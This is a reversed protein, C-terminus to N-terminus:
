LDSNELDAIPFYTIRLNTCGYPELTLTTEECVIQKDGFPEFTREFYPACLFPARYGKLRLVIPPKEWVYGDIDNEIVEIDAPNINEDLAFNWTTKFRRFAHIMQPDEVDPLEYVPHVDYCDFGEIHVETNAPVAEWREPIHLSYVLPGRRIAIPYKKALYSDDIRVVETEMDFTISLRDGSNWLRSVRVYGNVAQDTTINTGNIQVAYSNCWSPIRLYIAFEKDCDIVFSVNNRFPYNTEERLKIGNNDLTCPGYANAYIDGNQDAMWMNSVFEPLFRVANVPCCSVRCCPEYRQKPIQSSSSIKTAYIQNPASFYAIAKEDKKRAGQGGNYFMEEMYDGYVGEGTIASMYGYTAQFFTYSCYECETTSGIPGLYENVSVPSGTINMAKERIQRLIRRSAQLYREEGTASYVIAPLKTTTGYAATHQVNFSLEEELFAKYSSHFVDHDAYFETYEKAFDLLRQDETLQYCLIMPEIITPGAYTTKKDGSWNECFWLLCRHIATLVDERRTVEYFALLALMALACGWANFDDYIKADPEYFTGLYGDERQNKLMANVWNTAKDILEQDNLTYALRILGHWYNASIEGGWGSQLDLPWEKVYRKNVYPLAVMSPALEDLHGGMGHKCRMLQEKLFGEATISGLPIKNLKQYTKM